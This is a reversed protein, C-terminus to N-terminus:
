VRRPSDATGRWLRTARWEVAVVVLLAAALVLTLAEAWVTLPEYSPLLREFPGWPVSSTTPGWAATSGVLLGILLWATTLLTLSGLAVATRPLHRSAWAVLVAAPPLAAVLHRGPFSDGSTGMGFLAAVFLLCVGVALSLGAANEAERREPLMRALADRRSRWLLWVGFGALALVPAWRLLGFDRDLWLGALRPARDLYGSPFSVDPLIRHEVDAALPTLGGYLAENVATYAILSTSVIEFAIFAALRRHQRLTWHVLLAAVPIGPILYEPGLWPLAALALAAGAVWPIRADERTRVACLIAVTLLLAALGDPQIATANAVVPPSLGVILVGRTAWPEPVAMRALGVAVAFALAMEAALLLEVGTSGGLARVPAIAFPFGAGHPDHVRGDMLRGHIGPDAPLGEPLSDARWQDSLDVDGDAVLSQATLLHHVEEVSHEAGAVAHSGITAAYVAFLIAWVLLHRM